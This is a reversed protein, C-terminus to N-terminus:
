KKLGRFAMHALIAAMLGFLIIALWPGFAGSLSDMMGGHEDYFNFYKGGVGSSGVMFAVIVGVLGDGAVMGSAFLIGRLNRAAYEKIPTYRKVVMAILGGIMLPTSLSLPLYLGIAVPLSQVGLLEIGLAIVGGVLIPQWPLDFSMVGQVVTAM